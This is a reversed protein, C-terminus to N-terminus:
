AERGAPPARQETLLGLAEDSTKANKKLFECIKIDTPPFFQFHEAVTWSSNTLFHNRERKTTQPLITWLHEDTTGLATDWDLSEVPVKFDCYNKIHSNWTDSYNCSSIFNFHHLVNLVYFLHLALYVCYTLEVAPPLLSVQRWRHRHKWISFFVWTCCMWGKLCWM